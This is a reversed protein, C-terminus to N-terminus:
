VDARGESEFLEIHAEACRVGANEASKTMDVIALPNPELAKDFAPDPTQGRIRSGLVSEFEQDLGPGLEPLSIPLPEFGGGIGVQGM